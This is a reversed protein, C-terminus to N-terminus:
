NTAPPISFCHIPAYSRFGNGGCVWVPGCVIWAHAELIKDTDHSVGFYLAYPIGALGLLVRAAIAQTLCSAEFPTHRAATAIACKLIRAARLQNRTLVPTWAAIPAPRGLFPAIRHFPVFLVTLRALALLVWTPALLFKVSIPLALFSRFKRVPSLAM